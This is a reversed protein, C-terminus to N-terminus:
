KDNFLYGYKIKLREIINQKDEETFNDNVTISIDTEGNDIKRCLMKFIDDIAYNNYVFSFKPTKCLEGNNM